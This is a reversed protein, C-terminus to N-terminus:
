GRTFRRRQTMIALNVVLLVLCLGFGVMNVIPFLQPHQDALSQVHAAVGQRQAAEAAQKVQEGVAGFDTGEPLGFATLSLGSFSPLWSPAYVAHLGFALCCTALIALLWRSGIIQHATSSLKAEEARLMAKAEDISHPAQM